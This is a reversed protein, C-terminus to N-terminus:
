LACPAMVDDLLLGDGLEEDGDGLEDHPDEFSPVLTPDVLGAAELVAQGPHVFREGAHREHPRHLVQHLAPAEGAPHGSGRLGPEKRHFRYTKTLAAVEIAAM